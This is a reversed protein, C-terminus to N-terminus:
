PYGGTVPPFTQGHSVANNVTNRDLLWVVTDGSTPGTVKFVPQANDELWDLLEPAAFGYGQSLPRGQTLVYQADGDRLSQLSPLVEWGEHPLLAFEGTVSTLGVKSAKPLEAEMWARARVLGDDVASRAQIGFNLSIVAFLIAAATIGTRLRPQSNVLMSAAVPTSVLAALVVCYGFQEEAAGLLVSYAGMFGAFLSFLGIARRSQLASTAAVAGAVVSLGLLVYSTGFRGALEILRETLSV